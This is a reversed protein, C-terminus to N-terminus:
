PLEALRRRAREAHISNPHSALLARWATREESPRGLRMLTLARGVLAEEHLTSDGSAALYRDFEALAQDPQNLRDLLMRGFTVRSLAEERTGPFRRQLERYLLVARPADGGRRAENAQALLDAATPASAARTEPERAAHPAAPPPSPAGRAPPTDSGDDVVIVTPPTSPVLPVVPTLASAHAIAPARTPSLCVRGLTAALTGAVVFAAALLWALRHRRALWPTSVTRSTELPDPAVRAVIRALLADDGARPGADAAFDDVALREIACASCAARHEALRRREEAGLMQERERDAFEEPHRDFPSM